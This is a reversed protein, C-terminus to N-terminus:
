AHSVICELKGVIEYTEIGYPLIFHTGKNIPYTIDNVILQGKGEIVSVQLFDEVLDKMVQGNLAWHYVSFYDSEVLNTIDLGQKEKNVCHILDVSKDPVNSVDKSQQLHLENKNGQPNIRDYDYLRYTIDSNQQIELVVLGSGIGHITGNPVHMFDGAKVNVHQLLDDWQGQDIMEELEQHTKAHHGLIVEADEEASLIYWCEEKGYPVGEEEFAYEDNPHVQVALKEQADLIKVLLPYSQHTGEKRNFLSRHEEWVEILTKGALRGNEIITPGNPHASTVWAEGTNEFPIDYNFDKKLNQGGWLMEKFVPKLFLPEISM